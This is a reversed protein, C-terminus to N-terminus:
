IYWLQQICCCDRILQCWGRLLSDFINELTAGNYQLLWIISQYFTINSKKKKPITKFGTTDPLLKGLKCTCICPSHLQLKANKINVLQVPHDNHTIPINAQQLNCLGNTTYLSKFISLRSIHCKINGLYVMNIRVAIFSFVLVISPTQSFLSYFFTLQLRIFNLLM